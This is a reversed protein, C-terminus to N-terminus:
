GEPLDIRVAWACDGGIDLWVEADIPADPFPSVGPILASFYDVGREDYRVVSSSTTVRFDCVDSALPAAAAFQMWTADRNTWPGVRGAGVGSAAATPPPSDEFCLSCAPRETVRVYTKGAQAAAIWTLEFDIESYPVPAVTRWIPTDAPAQGAQPVNSVAFWTLDDVILPGLGVRVLYGAPLRVEARLLTTELPETRGLLFESVLPHEIGPGSRVALGNGTVELYDGVEIDSESAEQSSTSLQSASAVPLPSDTPSVHASVSPSAGEGACSALLLVTLCAVGNTRMDRM